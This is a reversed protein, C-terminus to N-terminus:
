YKSPRAKGGEARGRGKAARAPEGRVGAFAALVDPRHSCVLNSWRHSIRTHFEDVWCAGSAQALAGRNGQWFCAYGLGDLWALTQELAREGLHQKWARMYEFEVVDVRKALLSSAMGRLVLADWGETDVSALAVRDIGRAELFADVTTVNRPVTRKAWSKLAAVSEYGPSGTDRTYVVGTTNSVASAHVEVPAGSLAALQRLLRENSPQLEFAHLALKPASARQPMRKKHCIHCVGCCQLRCAPEAKTMMLAHWQENSVDAATYRQMWEALNFGKNAGINLMVVEGSRAAARAIMPAVRDHWADSPCNSHRGVEVAEPHCAPRAAHVLSALLALFLGRQPAAM